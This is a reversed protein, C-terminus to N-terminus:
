GIVEAFRALTGEWATPSDFIQRMQEAAPGYGDFRHELEVMAGAGDGTFRVEVESVLEPDYQWRNNVQWALLLRAPPEWALVKGWQCETGDEGREFWRGGVQPELVIDQIPSSGISQRSPWWSKMGDTFIAFARAPDANVRIRKRVPAVTITPSNM